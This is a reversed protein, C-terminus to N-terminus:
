KRHLYPSSDYERGRRCSRTGNRVPKADALPRVAEQLLKHYDWDRFRPRPDLPGVWKEPQEHRRAHKESARPDPQFEVLKLLLSATFGDLSKVMARTEEPTLHVQRPGM